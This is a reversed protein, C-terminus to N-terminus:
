SDDSKRKAEHAGHKAADKAEMATHKIAAAAEAATKKVEAGAKRMDPDNAVKHAEAKVDAVASRADHKAQAEDHRSCGAIAATFALLLIAARRM